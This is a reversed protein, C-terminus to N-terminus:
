SKQWESIMQKEKQSLSELSINLTPFAKKFKILEAIDLNVLLAAYSLHGGLRHAIPNIASLDALKEKFKKLTQSSSIQSYAQLAPIIAKLLCNKLAIPYESALTIHICADHLESMVPGGEFFHPAIFNTKVRPDTISVIHYHNAKYHTMTDVSISGFRILPKMQGEENLFCATAAYSPYQLRAKDKDIIFADVTPYESLTFQSVYYDPKFVIEGQVQVTHFYSLPCQIVIAVQLHQPLQRIKKIIEESNKKVKYHKNLLKIKVLFDAFEETPQGDVVLPVISVEDKVTPVTITAKKISGDKSQTQGSLVIPLGREFQSKANFISVLLHYEDQTIKQQIYAVLALDNIGSNPRTPNSWNFIKNDWECDKMAAIFTEVQAGYQREIDLLDEKLETNKRVFELVRLPAAIPLSKLVEPSDLLNLQVEVHPTTHISVIKKM